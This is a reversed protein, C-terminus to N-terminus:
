QGLLIGFAEQSDTGEQQSCNGPYGSAESAARDSMKGGDRFIRLDPGNERGTEAVSLKAAVM